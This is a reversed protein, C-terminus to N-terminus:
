SHLNFKYKYWNMSSMIIEDLNYKNRHGLINISKLNDCFLTPPDGERRPLWNINIEEGLIEEVKRVLQLNSIPSGNGLNFIGSIEDVKELATIHADALDMVHIYDRECTGDRSKYDNGYLNFPKKFLAAKILNPLIRKEPNHWEGVEFDTDNGVVNFYRLIIYKICFAKSYDLIIGETMLKSSGYPHIPNQTTLETIPLKEPIGYTACSSSYIIKKCNYKNMCDLINITGLVNTKYYKDPNQISEDVHALAAFHIVIDPHFEQFCNDLENINNIDGIYLKGYKCFEVCGTSLNDFVAINYNELKNLLKCTHSGIYGAGGIILINKM